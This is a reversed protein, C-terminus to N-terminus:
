AAMAQHRLLSPAARDPMRAFGPAEDCGGVITPASVEFALELGAISAVAIWQRHGIPETTIQQAALREGRGAHFRSFWDERAHELREAQRPSDAGIVTHREGSVRSELREAQHTRRPMM